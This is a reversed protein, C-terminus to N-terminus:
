VMLFGVDVLCLLRSVLLGEQFTAAFVVELRGPVRYLTGQAPIGPSLGLSGGGSVGGASTSVSCPHLPTFFLTPV